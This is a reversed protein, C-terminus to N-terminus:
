DGERSLSDSQWLRSSNEGGDTFGVDLVVARLPTPPNPGENVLEEAFNALDARLSSNSWLM